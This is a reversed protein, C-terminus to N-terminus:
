THLGKGGVIDGWPLFLQVLSDITLGRPLLSIIVYGQSLVLKVLDELRFESLGQLVFLSGLFGLLFCVLPLSEDVCLLRVFASALLHQMLKFGFVHVVLEFFLDFFFM